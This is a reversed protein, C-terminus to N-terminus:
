LAMLRVFMNEQKLADLDAFQWFMNSFEEDDMQMKPKLKKVCYFLYYVFDHGRVEMRLDACPQMIRKTYEAKLLASSATLGNKMLVSKWYKNFDLSCTQNSKDFSFSKDNEVMQLSREHMLCHIHFLERCVGMLTRLLCDKLDTRIRHGQSFYRSVVEKNCLYMDMSNYDTYCLYLGVRVNNLIKDWDLDVICLIPANLANLDRELSQALLIVQEKKSNRLESVTAPSLNEYLEDLEIDEIEYVKVDKIDHHSLFNNILYYDSMGEVYVNKLGPELTAMAVIENYNRKQEEM